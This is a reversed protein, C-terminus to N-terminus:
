PSRLAGERSHQTSPSSSRMSWSTLWPTLGNSVEELRKATEPKTEPTAGQRVKVLDEGYCALVGALNGSNYALIFRTIAAEIAHRQSIRGQTKVAEIADRIERESMGAGRESAAAPRKETVAHAHWAAIKWGSPTRTFALTGRFVTSEGPTTPGPAPREYTVVAADRGLPVVDVKRYDAPNGPPLQAGEIRKRYADIGRWEGNAVRIVLESSDLFTDLYTKKDGSTLATSWKDFVARVEQRIDAVASSGGSQRARPEIQLSLLLLIAFLLSSFPKMRFVDQM